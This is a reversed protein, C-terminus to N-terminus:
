RVSGWCDVEVARGSHSCASYGSCSPHSRSAMARPRPLSRGMPRPQRSSAVRSRLPCEPNHPHCQPLRREARPLLHAEQHPHPRVPRHRHVEPRPHPRVRSHLHPLAVPHPHPRVPRLPHGERRNSHPNRHIGRPRHQILCTTGTDPLQAAAANQKAPRELAVWGRTSDRRHDGVRQRRSRDHAGPRDACRRGAPTGSRGPDPPRDGRGPRTRLCRSTRRQLASGRVPEGPAPRRPRLRGGSLISAQDGAGCLGLEHWVLLERAADTDQCEVVDIDQPGLGATEYADGAALTSPPTIASDDIGALPTSEDLVSGPLHSRLSAALLRPADTTWWTQGDCSWRRPGRTPHASCSCGSRIM